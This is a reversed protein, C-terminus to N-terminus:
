FYAVGASNAANRMYVASTPMYLGGTGADTIYSNYRTIFKYIM